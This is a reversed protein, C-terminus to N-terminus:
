AVPENEVDAFPDAAHEALVGTGKRTYYALVLAGIVLWLIGGIKALRDANWLVFGIIAFGLVPVVWHLVVNGSRRKVAYYGVVSVHLLLFATLAGFNVLASIVDIQGVFVLGLVLTLAGVVLIAREPAKTKANVHSLFRPLRGDRSMSFLLRSTASQAAVANAIGVALANMALFAVEWGSNSISGVISFFANNVQDEGFETTGPVLMAALWTQTVFFLAVLVLGTIMAIGASRRGGKAEESLTAIGDFGLFSLVAISLAAAALQPTFLDANFL